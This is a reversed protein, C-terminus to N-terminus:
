RHGILQQRLSQMQSIPDGQPITVPQMTPIAPALGAPANQGFSDQQAYLEPVGAVRVGQAPGDFKQELQVVRNMGGNAIEVAAIGIAALKEGDPLTDGTKFVDSKGNVELIARALEKDDSYFLGQISINAVAAVPTVAAISPDQGFLHTTAIEQAVSGATKHVQAPTPQAPADAAKLKHPLMSWLLLSACVLLLASVPYRLRRPELLDFLYPKFNM